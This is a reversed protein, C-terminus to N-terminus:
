RRSGRTRTGFLDVHPLLRQMESALRVDFETLASGDRRTRAPAAHQDAILPSRDSVIHYNEPATDPTPEPRPPESRMVRRWIEENQPRLSELNAAHVQAAHAARLRDELAQLEPTMPVFPSKASPTQPAEPARQPAPQQHPPPPQPKGARIDAEIQEAARIMASFDFDPDPAPYHDSM